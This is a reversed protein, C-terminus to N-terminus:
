FLANFHGYVLLTQEEQGLNTGGLKNDVSGIYTSKLVNCM